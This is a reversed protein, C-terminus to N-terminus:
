RWTSSTPGDVTQCKETRGVLFWSVLVLVLAHDFTDRHQQHKRLWWVFCTCTATRTQFADNAVVSVAASMRNRELFQLSGVVAVAAVVDWLVVKGLTADRLPDNWERSKPLINLRM